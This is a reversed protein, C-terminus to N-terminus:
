PGTRTLPYERLAARIPDHLDALENTIASRWAAHWAYAERGHMAEAKRMQRWRRRRGSRCAEMRGVGVAGPSTSLERGKMRLAICGFISSM